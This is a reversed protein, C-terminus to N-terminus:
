SPKMTQRSRNALRQRPTGRTVNPAHLVADVGAAHGGKRGPWRAVSRACPDSGASRGKRSTLEVERVRHDAREDEGRRDARGDDLRGEPEPRVRAPREPEQRGADREGADADREGRDRGRVREDHEAHERGAEADGGVVRFPRLEGAVHAPAPPRAAHREERHAAVDAKREPRESAENKTMVSPSPRSPPTNTASGPSRTADISSKASGCRAENAGACTSAARPRPRPGAPAPREISRAM